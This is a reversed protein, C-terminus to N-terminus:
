QRTIKKSFDIFHNGAEAIDSTKRSSLAGIAFVDKYVSVNFGDKTPINEANGDIVKMKTLITDITEIDSGLALVIKTYFKETETPKSNRIGRNIVHMTTDISNAEMYNGQRKLNKIERRLERVREKDTEIQKQKKDSLYKNNEDSEVTLYKGHQPITKILTTNFIIEVGKGELYETINEVFQKNDKKSPEIPDPHFRDLVGVMYELNDVNSLSSIGEFDDIFKLNRHDRNDKEVIRIESTDYGNEVLNMVGFITSVGFGVIV